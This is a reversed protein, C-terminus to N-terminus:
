LRLLPLRSGESLVPSTTTINWDKVLRALVQVDANIHIPVPANEMDEVPRSLDPYRRPWVLSVGAIVYEARPGFRDMALCLAVVGSSPRFIAHRRTMRTPASRLRARLHKWAHRRLRSAVYLHGALGYQGLGRFIPERLGSPREWVQRRQVRNLSLVEGVAVRSAALRSRAEATVRGAEDEVRVGVTMSDLGTSQLRSLLPGHDLLSMQDDLYGFSNVSLTDDVAEPYYSLSSKASFLADSRPWRADPASGLIVVRFTVTDM